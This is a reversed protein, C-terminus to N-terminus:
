SRGSDRLVHWSARAAEVAANRALINTQFAIRDIGSIIGVIERASGNISEMTDIVRGVVDGGRVAVESAQMTRQNAQRANEANQRVTATM